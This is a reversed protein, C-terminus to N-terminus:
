AAPRKGDVKGLGLTRGGHRRFGFELDRVRSREAPLGVAVQADVDADVAILGTGGLVPVEAGAEVRLLQERAPAVGLRSVREALAARQGTLRRREAREFQPVETRAEVEADR